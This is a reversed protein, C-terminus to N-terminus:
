HSMRSFPDRMSLKGAEEDLGRGRAQNHHRGIGAADRKNIFVRFHAEQYVDPIPLFETNRDFMNKSILFHGMFQGFGASFQAPM